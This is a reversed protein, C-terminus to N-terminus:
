GFVRAEGRAAHLSASKLRRPVEDASAKERAGRPVFGHTGHRAHQDHPHPSQTVATAAGGRGAGSGGEEAGASVVGVSASSSGGGGRLSAGGVSSFFTSPSSSLCSSASGVGGSPAAAPSPTNASAAGRRSSGAVAGRTSRASLSATTREAGLLLCPSASAAQTAVSSSLSDASVCVRSALRRQQRPPHASPDRNYSAPLSLGVGSSRPHVPRTQGVCPSASACLSSASASPSPAMGLPADSSSPSFSSSAAAAGAFASNPVPPLAATLDQSQTDPGASQAGRRLFGGWKERPFLGQM